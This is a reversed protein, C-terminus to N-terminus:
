ATSCMGQLSRMCYRCLQIFDLMHQKNNRSTKLPIDHSVNVRAPIVSTAPLNIHSNASLIHSKVRVISKCDLSCAESLGAAIQVDWFAKVYVSKHLLLYFTTIDLCPKQLPNGAESTRCVYLLCNNDRTCLCIM